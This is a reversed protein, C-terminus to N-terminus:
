KKLGEYFDILANAREIAADGERAIEVLTAAAAPDIDCRAQEVAASAVPASDPLAPCAAAPISLRVAGSAIGYRVRDLEAAQAKSRQEYRTVVDQVTRANAQEIARAHESAALQSAAIHEQARITADHWGRWYAVLGSLAVVLVISALVRLDLLSM